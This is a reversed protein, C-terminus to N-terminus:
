ALFKVKFVKGVLRIHFHSPKIGEGGKVEMNLSCTELLQVM